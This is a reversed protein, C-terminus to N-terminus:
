VSHVDRPLTSFREVGDPTLHVIEELRIGFEGPLYIGPEVSFVNGVELVAPDNKKIYPSEHTSLGLGHGTRHVFYEGFGADEIVRRAARDVDGAAVGPLAAAMGAQLASEVIEHVERYRETPEGVFAMRTIDSSYGELRGGIDIVVADREQLVRDSTHHHPFAGNPGAAVIVFTVDVGAERFSMDAASAVELETAGPRCAALAALIADDATKSSATLLDIEDASKVARVQTLVDSASVHEATPALAQLILLIDARMEPDVAIRQASSAICALGGRAADLPGVDDTWVFSKLGPVAHAAQDANLAPMVIGVEDRSLLLICLREDPIPSFGLAYRLSDTPALALLDVGREAMAARLRDLREEARTAELV